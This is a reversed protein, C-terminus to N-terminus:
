SIDVIWKAPEAFISWGVRAANWISGEDVPDFIIDRSAGLDLGCELAKLLHDRSDDATAVAEEELVHQFRRHSVQKTV